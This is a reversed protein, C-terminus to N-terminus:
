HAVASVKTSAAKPAARKRSVKAPAESSDKAVARTRPKAKIAVVKAPEAAAVSEQQKALALELLTRHEALMLDGLENVDPVARRCAILGYDLRGNYSTVTINLALSHAVISVPYNSVVKAGAFYLPVPVGAINSIVVNALPPIIDALRSRSFLSALASLVWPAAPLPFDSPWGSKFSSVVRKTTASSSKIKQIRELPDKINTALDMTVMSVQTNTSTDGDHRMSVPVAACLSEEPLDNHDKLWTRLAGATTAMVVDNLSVDLLRAIQKAEALPVTRGAFTRQNTIAVNLSTRPAFLHFPKPVSWNRTGGVSKEPLLAAKASSALMPLAKVVTVTKQWTNRIAAGLLEATGLQYQNRRARPRAPKIVRGTPELDFIAKAVAVSAQGDMGAHHAKTYLAVQGSKLGTIIFFEWLPRSRDLLSSHLRAVYQQLQRNTGPKPLAIHRVHYDLDLDEDEVWVPNSIDLPMLALKRTFIEALHLRSAICAKCDEYFDGEYGPPLDLVNLSGIHMPMEPTEVHLFASDIANLHKM